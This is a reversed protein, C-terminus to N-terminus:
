NREVRMKAGNPMASLVKQGESGCHRRTAVTYRRPGSPNALFSCGFSVIDLFM